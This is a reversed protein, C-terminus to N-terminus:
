GWFDKRRRDISGLKEVMKERCSRCWDRFSPEILIRPEQQVHIHLTRSQGCCPCTPILLLDDPGDFRARPVYTRVADPHCLYYEDWFPTSGSCQKNDSM